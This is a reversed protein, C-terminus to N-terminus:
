REDAGLQKWKRGSARGAACAEARTLVHVRASRQAQRGGKAGYARRQAPDMEGFHRPRQTEM